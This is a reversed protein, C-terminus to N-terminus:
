AGQQLKNPRMMIPRGQAPALKPTWFGVFLYDLVVAFEMLVAMVAYVAVSGNFINFHHDHLFVSLVSYILRILLFPLAIAVGFGLRREGADIHSINALTLFTVFCIAGFAVVYLLVGVKTTTQM